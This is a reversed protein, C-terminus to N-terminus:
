RSSSIEYFRGRSMFKRKLWALSRQIYAGFIFVGSVAFGLVWLDSSFISSVHGTQRLLLDFIVLWVTRVLIFTLTCGLAVGLMAWFSRKAFLYEVLGVGVAATAGSAVVYGHGLGFLELILGQFVLWICGIVLLREYLLIIGCILLLPFFRWPAPLSAILAVQVMLALAFGLGSIFSTMPWASTSHVDYDM